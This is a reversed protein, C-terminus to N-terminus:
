EGCEVAGNLFTEILTIAQDYEENRPEYYEDFEGEDYGDQTIVHYECFAERIGDEPDGDLTVCAEVTMRWEKMDANDEDDICYEEYEDERFLLRDVFPIRIVADVVKAQVGYKALQANGAELYNEKLPFGGYIEGISEFSKEFDLM